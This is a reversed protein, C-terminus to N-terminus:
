IDMYMLNGHVDKYTVVYTLENTGLEKWKAEDTVKGNRRRRM